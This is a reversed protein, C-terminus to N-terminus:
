ANIERVINQVAEPKTVTIYNELYTRRAEQHIEMNIPDDPKSWPVSVGVDVFFSAMGSSGVWQPMLVQKGALVCNNITTSFSCICFQSFYILPDLHGREFLVSSDRVSISAQETVPHLKVVLRIGEKRLRDACTDIFQNRVERTIGAMDDQEPFGEELYVAYKVGARRLEKVKDPLDQDLFGGNSLTQNLKDYKPNGVVAVQASEYGLDIYYRKDNRSYVLCKDNTLEDRFEPFYFSRGPSKYYSYIVRLFRLDVLRSPSYKLLSYAYNPIVIRFYKGAKGLKKVTSNYSKEMMEVLAENSAGFDRIGHMLFITKIGLARCALTVVRDTIKTTNLTILVDPREQELMKYILTTGYSSIDRCAIGAVTEAMPTPENFSGVHLLLTSHGRARLEADFSAFNDIGKTWYDFYAIKM